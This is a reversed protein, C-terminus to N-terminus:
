CVKAQKDDEWRPALHSSPGLGLELTSCVKDVMCVVMSERFRPMQSTLPWMHKVVIDQEIANLRSVKRANRLAIFPHVFAHRGEELDTERWDYLFLDHLLAGRAASRHDMKLSKCIRYSLYSVNLSHALCNTRYHHRFGEMERVSEHALLDEICSHYDRYHEDISTRIRFKKIKSM